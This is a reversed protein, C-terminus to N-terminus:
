YCRPLSAGGALPYSRRLSALQRDLLTPHSLASRIAMTPRHRDQRSTSPSVSGSAPLPNSLPHIKQIRSWAAARSAGHQWRSPPRLRFATAGLSDQCERSSQQTVLVPLLAALSGNGDSVSSHGASVAAALRGSGPTSVGLTREARAAPSLSDGPGKDAPGCPGARRFIEIPFACASRGVSCGYGDPPTNSRGVVSVDSILYTRARRAATVITVFLHAHRAAQDLRFYSQSVRLPRLGRAQDLGRRSPPRPPAPGTRASVRM